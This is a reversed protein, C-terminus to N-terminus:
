FVSIKKKEMLLIKQLDERVIMLECEGEYNVSVSVTIAVEDGCDTEKGKYEILTKENYEVSIIIYDNRSFTKGYVWTNPIRQREIIEYEIRQEEGEGQKGFIVKLTHAIMRENFIEISESFIFQAQKGMDLSEKRIEQVLSRTFLVLLPSITEKELHLGRVYVTELDDATIGYQDMFDQVEWTITSQLVDDPSSAFYANCFVRNVQSRIPTILFQKNTITVENLSIALFDENKDIILAKFTRSDGDRSKTQSYLLFSHDRVCTAGIGMEKFIDKLYLTGQDGLYAPIFFYLEKASELGATTSAILNKILNRLTQVTGDTFRFQLENDMSLILHPRYQEKVLKLAEDHSLEILQLPNSLFVHEPESKYEGESMEVKIDRVLIGRSDVRELRSIIGDKGALGREVGQGDFIVIGIPIDRFKKIM